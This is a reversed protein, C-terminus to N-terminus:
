AGKSSYDAVPALRRRFLELVEEDSREPAGPLRVFYRLLERHKRLFLLALLKGMDLDFAIADERGYRERNKEFEQDLDWCHMGPRIHHYIHYGANFCAQNYKRGIANVSNRYPNDPEKPDIFAHQVWNGMIMIMRIYLMPVIFVVLVAQWSWFALAICIAFYIFECKLHRRAMEHDGRDRYYRTLDFIGYITFKLYYVIFHLFNDRQYAMTSSLDDPLNGEVHHMNHHIYFSWPTQGYFSALIWSLYFNLVHYREKFVRLHHITCHFMTTFRESFIMWVTWYGLALWWSFSELYFLWLAFPIILSSQVIVDLHRRNRPEHLVKEFIGGPPPPAKKRELEIAETDSPPNM